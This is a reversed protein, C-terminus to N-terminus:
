SDTLWWVYMYVDQLFFTCETWSVVYLRPLLIGLGRQHGQLNNTMNTM